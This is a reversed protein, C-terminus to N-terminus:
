KRTLCKKKGKLSKVCEIFRNGREEFDHFQDFSACAPSLLITEGPVAQEWATLVAHELYPSLMCPVVDQWAAAMTRAAKGLLYVGVVGALYLVLGILKAAAIEGFVFTLAVFPSLTPDEPNWLTPYGGGFFHTRLPFQGLETLSIRVAAHRAAHQLWDDRPNVRGWHQFYPFFFLSACAMVCLLPVIEAWTDPRPRAPLEERESDSM